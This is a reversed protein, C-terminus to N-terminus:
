LTGYYRIGFYVFFIFSTIKMKEHLIRLKQASGSRRTALSDLLFLRPSKGKVYLAIPATTVLILMPQGGLFAFLLGAM